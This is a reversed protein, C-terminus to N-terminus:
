KAFEHAVYYIVYDHDSIPEIQVTVLSGTLLSKGQLSFEMLEQAMGRPRVQEDVKSQWRSSFEDAIRERWANMIEPQESPSTINVSFKVTRWEDRSRQNVTESIRKITAQSEGEELLQELSAVPDFESAIGTMPLPDAQLCLAILWGVLAFVGTTILLIRWRGLHRRRAPQRQTKGPTV